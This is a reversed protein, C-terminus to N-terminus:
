VYSYGGGRGGGGRSGSSHVRAVGLKDVTIADGDCVSYYQNSSSHKTDMGGVSGWAGEMDLRHKSKPKGEAIRLKEFYVYAGYYVSSTNGADAGKKSRFDNLQKSQIRKPPVCTHYQSAITRLFHAATTTPNRLYLNIKRRIEDCSDYVEVQDEMEKDLTVGSIDVDGQKSAKNSGAAGAEAPDGESVRAKKKKQTVIGRLERKKFFTWAKAYVTSGAGKFPGNQTMFLSYGKSNVEIAKQFEGVKMENSDILARIKRRVVDCNDMAMNELEDDLAEDTMNAYYDQVFQDSKRKSM